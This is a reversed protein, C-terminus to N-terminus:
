RTRLNARYHHIESPPRERNRQTQLMRERAGAVAEALPQWDAVEVSGWSFLVWAHAMSRIQYDWLVESIHQLRRQAAAGSEDPLLLVFENEGARFAADRPGLLSAILADVGNASEGGELAPREPRQKGRTVGIAVAVGRFVEGRELLRELAAADHMGPPISVAAAPPVPVPEPAEPTSEPANPPEEALDSPAAPAEGDAAAAEAVPEEAVPPEEAVLTPEAAANVPCPEPAPERVPVPAPEAEEVPGADLPPLVDIPTVKAAILRRPIVDVLRAARQESVPAPRPREPEAQQNKAPRPPPASEPARRRKPEAPSSNSLRALREREQQRVALEINRERLVENNGKLFDCIFAVFLAGLVLLLSVFIQLEVSDLSM